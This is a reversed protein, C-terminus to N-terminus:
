VLNSFLSDFVGDAAQSKAVPDRTRNSASLSENFGWDVVKTTNEAKEIVEAQKEVLADIKADQKAMNDTLGTIASVMGTIASAMAALPDVEATAETPEEKEVPATAGAAASEAVSAPTEVEDAQETLQDTKEVEAEAKVVEAEPAPTEVAPVDAKVVPADMLLDHDGPATERINMPVEGDTDTKAITLSDLAGHLSADLKFVSQPLNKMLGTVHANFTNINQGMAEAVEDPTKSSNLVAYLTDHLASMADGFAPIFGMGALSEKFDTTVGYPYFEKAIVDVSVLVNETLAVTGASDATEASYGEQKFLTVGDAIEETSSVEFGCETLSKKIEDTVGNVYIATVKPVKQDKGFFSAAKEIMSESKEPIDEAKIIKFPARMAGNKVLSVQTVDANHIENAEIKFKM